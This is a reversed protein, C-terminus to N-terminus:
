LQIVQLVDKVYLRFRERSDGPRGGTWVKRWSGAPVQEEGGGQVLLYSCEAAAEKKLRLPAHYAFLAMQPPAVGSSAVCDYQQPL